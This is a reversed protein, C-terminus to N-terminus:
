CQFNKQVYCTVVHRSIHVFLKKPKRLFEFNEPRFNWIQTSFSGPFSISHRTTSPNQLSEQFLRKFLDQYWCFLSLESTYDLLKSQDDILSSHFHFIHMQKAFDSQSRLDCSAKAVSKDPITLARRTPRTVVSVFRYTSGQSTYAQFRFWDLRFGM